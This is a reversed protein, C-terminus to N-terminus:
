RTHGRVDVSTLLCWHVALRPGSLTRRRSSIAAGTGSSLPTLNWQGVDNVALSPTVKVAGELGLLFFEHADLSSSEPAVVRSGSLAQWHDAGRVSHFAVHPHGRRTNVFTFDGAGLVETISDDQALPCAGSGIQEWEAQTWGYRMVVGHPGAVDIRDSGADGVATIETPLCTLAGRGFIKSPSSDFQAQRVAVRQDDLLFLHVSPEVLLQRVRDLPLDPPTQDGLTATSTDYDLVRGAAVFSVLASNDQPLLDGLFIRQGAPVADLAAIRGSCYAPIEAEDGNLPYRYLCGSATAGFFLGGVTAVSSLADGDLLTRGLPDLDLWGNEGNAVGERFICPHGDAITIVEAGPATAKFRTAVLIQSSTANAANRTLRVRSSSNSYTHRQPDYLFGGTLTTFILKDHWSAVGTIEPAAGNPPARWGESPLVLSPSGTTFPEVRAAVEETSNDGSAVRYVCLKCDASLSLERVAGEDLRLSQSTSGTAALPGM